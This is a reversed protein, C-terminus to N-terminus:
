GGRVQNLEDIMLNIDEITPAVELISECGAEGDPCTCKPCEMNDYIGSIKKTDKLRKELGHIVDECYLKDDRNQQKCLFNIGQLTQISKESKLIGKKFEKISHNQEVITADRNSVKKKLIAIYSLLFLALLGILIPKWNKLAGSLLSGGLQKLILAFM